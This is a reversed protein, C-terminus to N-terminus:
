GIGMGQSAWLVFLTWLFIGISVIIGIRKLLKDRQFVLGFFCGFLPVNALIGHRVLAEPRATSSVSPDFNVFISTPLTALFLWIGLFKDHMFPLAALLLSGAATMGAIWPWRPPLRTIGYILIFWLLAEIFYAFHM